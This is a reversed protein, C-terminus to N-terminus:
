SADLVRRQGTPVPDRQAWPESQPPRPPDSRTTHGTPTTILIGTGDPTIHSTWGPTQKTYNCRECLGQGNNIHTPGGDQHPTIHDAHRIPADCWPTRCTQDRAILFQRAPEPFTRRHSDGGTLHGTDPDTYLRRIWAKIRPGADRVLQRALPAPIPGYGTLIAPETDGDFLTRDTMVLHIDLNVGAPVCGLATDATVTHAAETGTTDADARDVDSAAAGRDDTGADTADDARDNTALPEPNASNRSAPELDAHDDGRDPDPTAGPRDPHDARDVRAQCVPAQDVRAQCVPAHDVATQSAPAEDAPAQDVTTQGAPAQDAPAQDVPARGVTQHGAPTRTHTATGAQANPNTIRTVLEDAMLQGRSRADGTAKATDASRTLAAYVGVGHAVPLLATLYTMTDPAPRISVRRDGVAKRHRAVCQEPDLRQAIRAAAQATERDGLGALRGALERDVTRRDDASLCATERVLLTARWESIQGARLATYANPMERILATALGVHRGGRVPSERRAL